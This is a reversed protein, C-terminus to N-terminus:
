SPPSITVRLLFKALPLANDGDGGDDVVISYDRASLLTSALTVVVRGLADPHLGSAQWVPHNQATARVTVRYGADSTAHTELAFVILEPEPSLRLLYPETAPGLGRSPSLEILTTHAAAQRTSDLESQLHQARRIQLGFLTGIGVLLLPLIVKARWLRRRSRQHTAWTMAALEGAVTVRMGHHLRQAAEVQAACEPHELYYTEFLAEEEPALRGTVYREIVNEEEITRPEM